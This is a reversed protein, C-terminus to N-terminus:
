MLMEKQNPPGKKSLRPAKVNRFGEHIRCQGTLWGLFKMVNEVLEAPQKINSDRDGLPSSRGKEGHLSKRRM